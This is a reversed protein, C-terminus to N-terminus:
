YSNGLNIIDHIATDATGEEIAAGALIYITSATFEAPDEKTSIIILSTRWLVVHPMPGHRPKGGWREM